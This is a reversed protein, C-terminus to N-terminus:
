KLDELNVLVDGFKARPVPGPIRLSRVELPAHIEGLLLDGTSNDAERTRFVGIISVWSYAYEDFVGQQMDVPGRIRVQTEETVGAEFLEKSSSLVFLERSVGLYGEMRVLKGDFLRPTAALERFSVRCTSSGEVGCSKGSPEGGGEQHRCGAGYFIFFIVMFFRFDVNM